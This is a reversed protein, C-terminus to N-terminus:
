YMRINSDLGTETTNIVAGGGSGGGSPGPVMTDGVVLGGGTSGGGTGGSDNDNDGGADGSGGGNGGSGGVLSQVHLTIRSGPRVGTSESNGWVCDSYSYMDPEVWCQEIVATNEDKGPGYYLRDRSLATATLCTGTASDFIEGVDCRVCNGYKDIGNRLDSVGCDVCTARSASPDFGYGPTTCLMGWCGKDGDEFFRTEMTEPDYDGFDRYGDSTQCTTGSNVAQVIECLDSDIPVCDTNTFNPEYGEMCLLTEHGVHYAMAVGPGESWHGDYFDARAIFPSVWVGHKSDTWRSVALIADHEMPSPWVGKIWRVCSAKVSQSFMAVDDEAVRVNGKITIDNWLSEKIETPNCTKSTTEQCNTGFYGPKCLWLCDSSQVESPEYYVTWYPRKDSTNGLQWRHKNGAIVTPCFYGGNENLDRAILMMFGVRFDGIKCTGSDNKTGGKCVARDAGIAADGIDPDGCTSVDAPVGWADRLASADWAYANASCLIIMVFIILKKTM